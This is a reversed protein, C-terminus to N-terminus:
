IRDADALDEPLDPVDLPVGGARLSQTATFAAAVSWRGAVLPAVPREGDLAWRVFARCIQPDAGGHGGEVKKVHYTRDAYERWTNSRRTFVDITHNKNVEMRGESGIVTYNRWSDPTFHCQLYAGQIGRDMQMLVMSVDEVDIERRYACLQTATEWTSVDPCTERRDCEPCTLDNPADGGFWTRAGLATVRRTLAGTVWHMVDFDHTAKQLLLGLQTARTAHWDHFYADGGYNIFHRTWAAKVDGLVGSEVIEKMTRIVVMYRMNFGVMARVGAARAARLIRDADDITLALPKECFLHKRAELVALAHEAHLRDPSCVAVADVDPRELLRRYDDTVFADRTVREQFRALSQPSPDAAAVVVSRGAPDHWHCALSGRGWAGIMGIRLQTKTM